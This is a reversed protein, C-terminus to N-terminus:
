RACCIWRGQMWWRFRRFRMTRRINCRWLKARGLLRALNKELESREAYQLKEGPLSDLTFSEIRHVLKKPAGKAPIWYFWRRKALADRLGLVRYGIPDRHLIDYFLWGDMKEERLAKQIAQIDPM